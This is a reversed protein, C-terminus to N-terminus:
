VNTKSWCSKFTAYESPFPVVKTVIQFNCLGDQSAFVITLFLSLFFYQNDNEIYHFNVLLVTSLNRACIWWATRVEASMMWLFAMVSCSKPTQKETFLWRLLDGSLYLLALSHYWIIITQLLSFLAWIVTKGIVPLRQVTNWIILEFHRMAALIIFSSLLGKSAQAFM